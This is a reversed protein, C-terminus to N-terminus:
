RHGLTLVLRGLRRGLSNMRDIVWAASGLRGGWQDFCEQCMFSWAYTAEYEATAVECIDCTPIRTVQMRTEKRM